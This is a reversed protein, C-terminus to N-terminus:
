HADGFLFWAWGMGLLSVALLTLLFRVAVAKAIGGNSSSECPFLYGVILGYVLFPGGLSVYVFTPHGMMQLLTLLYWPPPKGTYLTSCYKIVGVQFWVVPSSFTGIATVYVGIVPIMWLVIIAAFFAAGCMLSSQSRSLTDNM